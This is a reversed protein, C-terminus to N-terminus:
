ETVYSDSTSVICIICSALLRLPKASPATIAASNAAVFFPNRPIFSRSGNQIRLQLSLYFLCSYKYTVVIVNFSRIMLVDRRWHIHNAEVAVANNSKEIHAPLKHSRKNINRSKSMQTVFNTGHVNQFFVFFGARRFTISHTSAITKASM